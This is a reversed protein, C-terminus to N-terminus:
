LSDLLAPLGSVGALLHTHRHPALQGLSLAGSAVGVVARVGANIGARLDAVTDGAVVVQDVSDVGTREMARFILYPAPRGAPVEDGCVVADITGTGYGVTWGLSDLLAVAIDQSFGTTLAIRVGRERLGDFAAMVGDIPEPPTRRYAETLQDRFRQFMRDVAGEDPSTGSAIETLARIAARKETGMWTQLDEPSISAGANIPDQVVADNLAVYVAGGEDITTGAMDLAALAIM